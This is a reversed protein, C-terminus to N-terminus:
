YLLDLIANRHQWALRFLWAMGAWCLLVYLFLAVCVRLMLSDHYERRNAATRRGAVYEDVTPGHLTTEQDGPYATRSIHKM